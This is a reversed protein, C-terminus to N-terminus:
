KGKLDIEEVLFVNQGQKDNVIVPEVLLSWNEVSASGWAKVMIVEDKVGGFSFGPSIGIMANTKLSDANLYYPSFLMFNSLDNNTKIRSGFKSRNNLDDPMPLQQGYIGSFLFAGLYLLRIFRKKM